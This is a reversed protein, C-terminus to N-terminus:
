GGFEHLPKGNITFMLKGHTEDSIKLTKVKNGQNKQTNGLGEGKPNKTSGAPKPRIQCPPLRHVRLIRV